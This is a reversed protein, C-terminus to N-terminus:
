SAPALRARTFAEIALSALNEVHADFASTKEQLIAIVGTALDAPALVTRRSGYGWSLAHAAQKTMRGTDRVLNAAPRGWAEAVIRGHLSSGCYATANALLACIDWIDLSEAVVADLVIADVVVGDALRAIAHM